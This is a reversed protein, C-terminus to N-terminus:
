FISWPHASSKHFQNSRSAKSAAGELLSNVFEHVADM